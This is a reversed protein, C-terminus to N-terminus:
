YFFLFYFDIPKCGPRLWTKGLWGVLDILDCWIKEKRMNKWSLGIRAWIPQIGSSGTAVFKLVINYVARGSPQPFLRPGITRTSLMALPNCDYHTGKREWHEKGPACCVGNSM